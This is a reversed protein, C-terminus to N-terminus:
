DKQPASWARTLYAGLISRHGAVRHAVLELFAAFQKEALQVRMDNQSCWAGNDGSKTSFAVPM